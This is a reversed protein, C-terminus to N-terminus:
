NIKSLLAIAAVESRLVNNGLSISIINTKSTLFEIEEETFGGEPGVIAALNPSSKLQKEASEQENAFFVYDYKLFDIERLEKESKLIPFDLRESQRVSEKIIKEIREYNIDRRQVRDTIVPIIEDVGIQIAADIAQEFKDSKIVPMFLTLRNKKGLKTRIQSKATISSSKKDSSFKALFEGDNENFVRIDFGDRIRLVNKLYNDQESDLSYNTEAIIKDKLYIRPLKSYKM